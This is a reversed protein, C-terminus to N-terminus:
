KFEAARKYYEQAKTKDGFANLYMDGLLSYCQSLYIQDKRPNFTKIAKFLQTEALRLIQLGKKPDSDKFTSTGNGSLISGYMMYRMPTPDLEIARVMYDLGQDVDGDDIAQASKDELDDAQSKLKQAQFARNSGL